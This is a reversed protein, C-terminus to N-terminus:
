YTHMHTHPRPLSLLGSGLLRVWLKSLWSVLWLINGRSKHQGVCSGSVGNAISSKCLNLHAQLFNLIQLHSMFFFKFLLRFLLFCPLHLTVFALHISHKLLLSLTVTGFASLWPPYGGLFSRAINLDPILKTPTIRIGAYPHLGPQLGHSQLLFVLHLM